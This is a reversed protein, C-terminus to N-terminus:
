RIRAARSYPLLRAGPQVSRRASAARWRQKLARRGRTRSEWETAILRRTEARERGAPTSYRGITSTPLSGLFTMGHLLPLLTMMPVFGHHVAVLVEVYRVVQVTALVPSMQKGSVGVLVVVGLNVVHVGRMLVLRLLVPPLCVQVVM